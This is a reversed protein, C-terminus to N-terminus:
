AWLSGAISSNLFRQGGCQRRDPRTQQGTGLSLQPPMVLRPDPLLVLERPAPGPATCPRPGRVILARQASEFPRRLVSQTWRCCGSM